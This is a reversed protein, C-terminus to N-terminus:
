MCGVIPSPLPEGVVALAHFTIQDTGMGYIKKTREYAISVIATGTGGEDPMGGKEETMVQISIGTVKLRFAIVQGVKLVEHGRPGYLVPVSVPARDKGLLVGKEWSKGAESCLLKDTIRRDACYEGFTQNCSMNLRVLQELQFEELRTEMTVISKNMNDNMRMIMMAVIGVLGMAVMIEILSFGKQRSNPM